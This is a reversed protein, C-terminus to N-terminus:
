RGSLEEKAKLAVIVDVVDKIAASDKGTKVSDSQKKLCDYVQKIYPDEISFEDEGNLADQRGPLPLCTNWIRMARSTEVVVASIMIINDQLLFFHKLFMSVSEPSYGQEQAYVASLQCVEISRYLVMKAALAQADNLVTGPEFKLVNAGQEKM